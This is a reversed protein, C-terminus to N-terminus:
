DTPSEEPEELLDRLDDLYGSWYAEHDDRMADDADAEGWGEHLLAVRAGGDPLPEVIWRVMTPRRPEDDLWAWEHAFARGPELETLRGEVVSGDGFDIRYSEGVDGLPSAEAFWLAVLEPDTIFAWAREPAARTEIALMIPAIQTV